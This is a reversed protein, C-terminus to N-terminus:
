PIQRQAVQSIDSLMIGELEIWEAAFPLLEKNGEATYHEMTYIYWNKSGSM